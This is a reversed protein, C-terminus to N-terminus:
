FTRNKNSENSILPYFWSRHYIIYATHYPGYPIPYVRPDWTQDVEEEMVHCSICATVLKTWPSKRRFKQDCSLNEDFVCTQDMNLSKPYVLKTWNSCFFISWVQSNSFNTIVHCSIMRCSNMMHDFIEFLFDTSWVQSPMCISHRSPPPLPGFKPGGHVMTILTFLLLPKEFKM